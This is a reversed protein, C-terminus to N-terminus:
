AKGGAADRIISTMLQNITKDWDKRKMRLSPCDKMSQVAKSFQEGRQKFDNFVTEIMKEDFPGGMAAEIAMREGEPLAKFAHFFIAWDYYARFIREAFRFGRVTIGEM